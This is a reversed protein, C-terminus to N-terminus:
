PISWFHRIAKYACDAAIRSQDRQLDCRRQDQQDAGSQQDVTENAQGSEVEVEIRRAQQREFVTNGLLLVHAVHANKLSRGVGCDIRRRRRGDLADILAESRHRARLRDRADGLRGHVAQHEVGHAEADLIPGHRFVRRISVSKPGHIKQDSGIEEGRHLGAQHPPSIQVVEIGRGGGQTAMMLSVMARRKQGPSSGIPFRKVSCDNRTLLRAFDDAHHPVNRRPAVPGLWMGAM